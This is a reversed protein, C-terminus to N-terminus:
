RQLDSRSSMLSQAHVNPRYALRKIAAEVRQRTQPNVLHSRNVVRSVTSISVNAQQAVDHITAPM